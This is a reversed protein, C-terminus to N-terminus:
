EAQERQDASALMERCDGILMRLRDVEAALSAREGELKEVLALQERLRKWVRTESLDARSLVGLAIARAVLARLEDSKLTVLLDRYVIRESGGRTGPTVEDRFRARVEIEDDVHSLQVESAPVSVFMTKGTSYNDLREAYIHAYM